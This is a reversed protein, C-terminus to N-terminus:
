TCFAVGPELPELLAPAAKDVGAGAGEALTEVVDFWFISLAVGPELPEL